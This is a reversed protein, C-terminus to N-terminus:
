KKWFPVLGLFKEGPIQEVVRPTYDVPPEQEEWSGEKWSRRPFHGRRRLEARRRRILRRIQENIQDLSNM